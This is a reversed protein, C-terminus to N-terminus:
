VNWANMMYGGSDALALALHGTSVTVRRCVDSKSLWSAGARLERAQRAQLMACLNVKMKALILLM